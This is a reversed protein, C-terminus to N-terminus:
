AKTPLTLHTYSVTIVEKWRGREKSIKLRQGLLAEMATSGMLILIKPSIISIHERLFVSYRKIESSEPRRNNPTKYNIVNTIYVNERKINIANLMKNLLIGADGVFPKGQTDETDGPGEGVIMLSSKYTGDSFVINKSFKKLECDEISKIKDELQALEKFTENSDHKKNFRNIPANNFIYESEISKIFEQNLIEKNVM